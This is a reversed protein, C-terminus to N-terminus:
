LPARMQFSHNRTLNGSTGGKLSMIDKVNIKLNTNNDYLQLFSRVTKSDLLRVPTKAM